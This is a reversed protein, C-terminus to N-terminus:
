KANITSGKLIGVRTVQVGQQCAYRGLDMRLDDVKEPPINAFNVLPMEEDIFLGQLLGDANTGTAAEIIRVLLDEAKIPKGTM